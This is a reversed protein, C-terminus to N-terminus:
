FFKNTKGRQGPNIGSNGINKYGSKSNLSENNKANMAENKQNIKQNM